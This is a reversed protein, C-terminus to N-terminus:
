RDYLKCINEELRHTSKKNEKNNRISHLFKQTSTPEM